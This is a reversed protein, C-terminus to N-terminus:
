HGVMAGDRGARVEGEVKDGVDWMGLMVEMQVGRVVFIGPGWGRWGEEM